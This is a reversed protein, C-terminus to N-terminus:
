TCPAFCVLTSSKTRNLYIQYYELMLVVIFFLVKKINTFGLKDFKDVYQEKTNVSNNTVFIVRKGLSELAAVASPSGDIATHARYHMVSNKQM